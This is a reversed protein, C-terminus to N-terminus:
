GNTGLSACLLQLRWIPFTNCHRLKLPEQGGVGFMGAFFKSATKMNDARFLVWLMNVCFLTYVHGFATSNIKSVIPTYKEFVLLLFYGLGWAIFTWDAGHWIGTVMWVIFMNLLHKYVRCKNGGLPIYIYDRIWNTLTMHWKKWFESVTSSQYPKNFNERIEFGMLEGIGIAIDSYGSFDFYLQLSYAISGMWFGSVSYNNGLAVGDFYYDALPAVKDAILVKKSFGIIIREVAKFNKTKCTNPQNLGERFENYRIIPGSTVTPFFSLYSFTYLLNGKTTKEKYVDVLLSVAEFSIFSIGLPVILSPKEINLQLAKNINEMLFVTYKVYLLPSVAIFISAGCLWNKRFKSLMNELAWIVVSYTCLFLFGGWGSWVYFISNAIIILTIRGYVEKNCCRRYIIVFWPLLGILFISTSFTM